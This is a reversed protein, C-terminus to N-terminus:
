TLEKEKKRAAGRNKHMTGFVSTRAAHFKKLFCAITSDSINGPGGLFMVRMQEEKGEM